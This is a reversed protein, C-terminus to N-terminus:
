ERCAVVIPDNGESSPILSSIQFGYDKAISEMGKLSAYYAYKGMSDGTEGGELWRRERDPCGVMVINKINSDEIKEFLGRIKDRFHYIVRSMFITDVKDFIEPYSDVEGLLFHCHDVNMGMDAWAQRLELACQYQQPMLEVGYVVKKRLALVLAQTGDASGIEMIRHGPVLEAIERYRDPVNGKLIEEKHEEFYSQFSMEASPDYYRVGEPDHAVIKRNRRLIKKALHKIKSIM